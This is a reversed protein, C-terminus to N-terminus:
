QLARPSALVFSWLHARLRAFEGDDDGAGALLAEWRRLLAFWRVARWARHRREAPDPRATLLILAVPGGRARRLAEARYPALQGVGVAAGLKAEVAVVACREGPGIPWEFLLDIRAPASRVAPDTAARPRPAPVPHEALVSPRTRDSLTERVAGADALGTLLRLFAVARQQGRWGAAPTMLDRLGRTVDPERLRYGVRLAGSGFPHGAWAPGFGGGPELFPVLAIGRALREAAAGLLEAADARQALQRGAEDRLAKEEREGWADLGVAATEVRALALRVADRLLPGTEAPSSAVM